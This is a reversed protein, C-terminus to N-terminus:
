DDGYERIVRYVPCTKDHHPHRLHPHRLGGPGSWVREGCIRCADGLDTRNEDMVRIIEILTKVRDSMRTNDTRMARVKAELENIRRELEANRAIGDSVSM